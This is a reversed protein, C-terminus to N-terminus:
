WFHLLKTPEQHGTESTQLRNRCLTPYCSLSAHDASGVRVDAVSLPTHLNRRCTNQDLNAPGIAVSVHPSGFVLAVIRPRSPTAAEEKPKTPRSTPAHKGAFTYPGGVGRRQSRSRMWEGTLLRRQSARGLRDTRHRHRRAAPGSGPLIEITTERICM